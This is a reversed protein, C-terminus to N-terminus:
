CIGPDIHLLRHGSTATVLLHIADVSHRVRQRIALGTCQPKSCNQDTVTSTAALAPTGAGPQELIFTGNALYIDPEMATLTYPVAHSEFVFGKKVELKGVDQATTTPPSGCASAYGTSLFSLALAIVMFKKM